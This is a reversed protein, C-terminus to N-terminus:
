ELKLDEGDTVVQQVSRKLCTMRTNTAEDIKLVVKNDAVSVVTGIIGGITMVRDNKKLEDLMRAKQEKEKKQARTTMYFFVGMFLALGILLTLGGGQPQQALVAHSITNLM